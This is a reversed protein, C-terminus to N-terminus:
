ANSICLTHAPSSLAFSGRDGRKASALRIGRRFESGSVTWVPLMLLAHFPLSLDGSTIELSPEELLSVMRGGKRANSGGEWSRSEDTRAPSIKGNHWRWSEFRFDTWGKEDNSGGEWSRMLEHLHSREAQKMRLIIGKIDFENQKKSSTLNRLATTIMDAKCASSGSRILPLTTANMRRERAIIRLGLSGYSSFLFECIAAPLTPIPLWAVSIGSSSLPQPRGVFPIIPASTM